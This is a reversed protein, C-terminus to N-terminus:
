TEILETFLFRFQVLRALVLASFLRNPGTHMSARCYTRGHMSKKNTSQFSVTKDKKEERNM